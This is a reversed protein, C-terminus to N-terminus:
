EVIVSHTYQANGDMVQVLYMGAPINSVDIQLNGTQLAGYYREVVVQGFTNVMRIALNDAAEPLDVNVNLLNNAPNPFVKVGQELATEDVGSVFDIRWIFPDASRDDIWEFYYTTGATVELGEILSSLGCDNESSAILELSNYDGCTGTYVFLYTDTGSDCSTITATGDGEPTWSYWNSGTYGAPCSGSSSCLDFINDGAVAAEGVFANVFLDEGATVAQASQCFAAETPADTSFGLDWKFGVNDWRDDWMIYYTAGAEVYAEKYSAYADGNSQECRDDNMGVLVLEDCDGKFLWARSDSDGNCSSISLIGNESPTYSYWVAALGGSASGTGGYHY